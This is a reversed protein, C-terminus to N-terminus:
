DIILSATVKHNLGGSTGTFTLTHTGKSANQAATITVTAQASGSASLTVQTPSIACTTGGPVGGCSLSLTGSFEGVPTVTLIYTGSTSRAVTLSSPSVAVTFDSVFQTFAPSTSGAFDPNSSTFVAVVSHSGASLSNTSYNATGNSVNVSAAATSSGDLYFNVTGSQTGSSSSSATATFTVTSKVVAPNANSTIVTSTAAPNVVEALAASTSGTFNRDGAYTATISHSGLGFNAVSIQAAYNAVNAAGLSSSGDFFTVTGTVFTGSVSPVVTATL